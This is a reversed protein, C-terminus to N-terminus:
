EGRDGRPPRSPQQMYRHARDGESHQWVDQLGDAIERKRNLDDASSEDAVTM